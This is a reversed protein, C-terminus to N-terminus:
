VKLNRSLSQTLLRVCTATAGRYGSDRDIDRETLTKTM